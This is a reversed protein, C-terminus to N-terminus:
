RKMIDKLDAGTHPFHPVSFLYSILDAGKGYFARAILHTHVLVRRLLSISELFYDVVGCFWMLQHKLLKKQALYM